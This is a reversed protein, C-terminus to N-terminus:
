SQRGATMTVVSKRCNMKESTTFFWREDCLFPRISFELLAEEFFRIEREKGM